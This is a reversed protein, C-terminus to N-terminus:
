RENEIIKCAENILEEPKLEDIYLWNVGNKKESGLLSDSQM